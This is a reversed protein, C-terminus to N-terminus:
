IGPQPVFIGYEVWHTWILFFLIQPYIKFDGSDAKQDYMIQM